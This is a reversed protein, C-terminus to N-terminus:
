QSSVTIGLLQRIRGLEEELPREAAGSFVHLLATDLERVEHSGLDPPHDAPRGLLPSLMGTLEALTSREAERAGAIWSGLSNACGCDALARKRGNLLERMSSYGLVRRSLSLVRNTLQDADGSYSQKLWEEGLPPKGTSADRQAPLLRLGAAADADVIDPRPGRVAGLAEELHHRAEPTGGLLAIQVGGTNRTVVASWGDLLRAGGLANWGEVEAMAAPSPTGTEPSPPQTSPMNPAPPTIESLAPAEKQEMIEIAKESRPELRLKVVRYSSADLTVAALRIPDAQAETSLRIEDGNRELRDLKNRLRGHWQRFASASLPNEADWHVARLRAHSGTCGAATELDGRWQCSTGGSDMRMLRQAPPASLEARVARTLVADANLKAPATFWLIAITLAAALTGTLAIRHRRWPQQRYGAITGPAIAQGLGARFAFGDQLRRQCLSCGELHRFIERDGSPRVEGTSLLLIAEESLHLQPNTTM